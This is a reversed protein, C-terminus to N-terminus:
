KKKEAKEPKGAAKEPKGAAKEDKGPEKPAGESGEPTAAAETTTLAAAAAAKAAEEEEELTSRPATVTSVNISVADLIKISAPMKLDGITLSKHFDVLSSVDMEIEHILDKPLCEVLVSHKNQVLIGGLEKVAPAIGTFIIPIQTRIPKNLDVAMVDIHIMRDTVPEYQIEHVLVPSEEGKENVLYIITSRGGKLFIKRFAQYETSFSRNTIGKGYYAMPINGAERASKASTYGSETVQLTLKDM